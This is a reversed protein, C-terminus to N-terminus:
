IQIKNPFYFSEKIALTKPSKQPPLRTARPSSESVNGTRVPLSMTSNNRKSFLNKNNLQENPPKSKTEWPPFSTHLRTIEEKFFSPILQFQAIPFINLCHSQSPCVSYRQLKFKNEKHKFHHCWPNLPLLLNSSFYWWKSNFM